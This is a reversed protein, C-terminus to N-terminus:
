VVQASNSFCRRNEDIEGGIRLLLDRVACMTWSEVGEIVDILM